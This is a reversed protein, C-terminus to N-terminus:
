RRVCRVHHMYGDGDPPPVLNASRYLQKVWEKCNEKEEDDMAKTSMANAIWKDRWMPLQAKDEETLTYKKM